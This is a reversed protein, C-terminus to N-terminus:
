VNNLGRNKRVTKIHFLELYCRIPLNLLVILKKLFNGKQLEYYSIEAWKKMVIETLVRHEYVKYRKNNRLIEKMWKKRQLDYSKRGTLFGFHIEEWNDPMQIHLRSLQEQMIQKACDMQIDKKERSVAKDHIRYKLLVKPVNACEGYQSCEVWMRYDQAYLYDENYKIKYELLKKHVFMATPHIINTHNGFLLHVRFEEKSPIQKKVIKQTHRTAGDGFLEVWTGCVIVEPNNNLFRVQEDLRTPLCEDDADMRAIYEGKAEALARNLSKTIGINKKNQLFVIRSDKYSQIIKADDGNSCDDVIIFEFFNYTQELVSEIAKRLYMEPTNFSSMIISVMGPVVEM